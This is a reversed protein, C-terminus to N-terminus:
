PAGWLALAALIFVSAAAVLSASFSEAEGAARTAALWLELVRKM